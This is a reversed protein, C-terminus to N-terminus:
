PLLYGRWVDLYAGLAENKTSAVLHQATSVLQREWDRAFAAVQGLRVSVDAGGVLFSVEYTCGDYQGGRPSPPWCQPPLEFRPEDLTTFDACASSEPSGGVVMGVRYGIVDNEHTTRVFGLQAWAHFSPQISAVWLTASRRPGPLPSVFPEDCAALCRLGLLTQLADREPFPGAVQGDPRGFRPPNSPAAQKLPRSPWRHVLDLLGM